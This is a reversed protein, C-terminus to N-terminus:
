HTARPRHERWVEDMDLELKAKKMAVVANDSYMRHTSRGFVFDHRCSDDDDIGVKRRLALCRPETLELLRALEEKSVHYKKQLDVERVAAAVGPDDAPVYHVGPGGTKAFHVRVRLGEGDVETVLGRLRPFVDDRPRGARIPREVRQVDRTSVVVADSIHAELALLCRIRARAEARRRRGPQLLQAIQTYEEDLLIQIDRPPEASIPLVRLPLYNTLRDAMTRDLLEDFLTVAARVHAYLLGESVEAFWHQEQDRLADVARLLGAESETVGLHEGSLNVCRNFGISKGQAEDFVSLRRDVLAAKLLMEFAHQLHLLVATVRGEDDFSNFAEASRRLSRISKLKLIRAERRLRVTVLKVNAEAWPIV